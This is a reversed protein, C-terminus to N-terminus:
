RGAFQGWPHRDVEGDAAAPSATRSGLSVASSSPTLRTRWSREESSNARPLGAGSAVPPQAGARRRRGDGRRERRPSSCRCGRRSHGRPMARARRGALSHERVARPGPLHSTTGTVTGRRSAGSPGDLGSDGDRQRPLGSRRRTPRPLPRSRSRRSGEPRSRETVQLAANYNADGAQDHSSRAPGTGSTM